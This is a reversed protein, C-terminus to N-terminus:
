HQLEVECYECGRPDAFGHRVLKEFASIWKASFTSAPPQWPKDQQPPSPMDTGKFLVGPKTPPRRVNMVILPSGGADAQFLHRGLPLLVL